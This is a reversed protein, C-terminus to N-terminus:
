LHHSGRVTLLSSTVVDVALTDIIDIRVASSVDALELVEQGGHLLTVEVISELAEDTVSPRQPRLRRHHPV